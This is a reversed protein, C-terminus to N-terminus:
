TAPAAGSTFHTSTDSAPSTTNLFWPGLAVEHALGTEPSAPLPISGIGRRSQRRNSRPKRAWRMDHSGFPLRATVGHTGIRSSTFYSM